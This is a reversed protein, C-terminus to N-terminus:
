QGRALAPFVRRSRPQSFSAERIVLRCDYNHIRSRTALNEKKRCEQTPLSGCKITMKHFRYHIALTELKTVSTSMVWPVRVFNVLMKTFQYFHVGGSGRGGFISLTWLSVAFSLEKSTLIHKGKKWFVMAIALWADRDFLVSTCLYMVSILWNNWHFSCYFKFMTETNKPIYSLFKGILSAVM